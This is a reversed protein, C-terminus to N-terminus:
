LVRERVDCARPLGTACWISLHELAGFAPAAFIRSLQANEVALVTSLERLTPPGLVDDADATALLSDLLPYTVTPFVITTAPGLLLYRLLTKRLSVVEGYEVPAATGDQLAPSWAAYTFSRVLAWLPQRGLM